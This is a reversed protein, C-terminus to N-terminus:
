VGSRSKKGAYGMKQLARDYAPGCGLSLLWAEEMTLWGGGGEKAWELAEARNKPKSMHTLRVWIRPLGDSFGCPVTPGDCCVPVGADILARKLTPWQAIATQLLKDRGDQWRAALERRYEELKATLLEDTLENTPPFDWRPLELVDYLRDLLEASRDTPYSKQLNTLHDQLAHLLGWADAM